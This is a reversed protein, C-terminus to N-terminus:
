SSIAESKNIEADLAVVPSESDRDAYAVRLGLWFALGAMAANLLIVLISVLYWVSRQEDCGAEIVVQAEELLRLMAQENRDSAVLLSHFQQPTPGSVGTAREIQMQLAYQASLTRNSSQRQLVSITELQRQNVQTECTIVHEQLASVLFATSSLLFTGAAIAVVGARM